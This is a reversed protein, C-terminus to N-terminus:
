HGNKKWLFFLQLIVSIVISAPIAFRLFKQKGPSQATDSKNDLNAIRGMLENDIEHPENVLLGLAELIQPMDSEKFNWKKNPLNANVLFTGDDNTTVGLEHRGNYFQFHAPCVENTKNRSEKAKKTREGWPFNSLIQIAEGYTVVRPSTSSFDELQEVLILGTKNGQHKM